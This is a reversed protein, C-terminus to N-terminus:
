QQPEDELGLDQILAEVDTYRVRREDYEGDLWYAVAFAAIGLRLRLVRLWSLPRYGELESVPIWRTM